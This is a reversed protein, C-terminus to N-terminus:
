HCPLSQAVPLPLRTRGFAEFVSGLRTRSTQKGWFLHGEDREREPRTETPLYVITEDIDVTAFGCVGDSSYVLNWTHVDGTQGVLHCQHRSGLSFPIGCHKSLNAMWYVEFPLSGESLRLELQAIWPSHRSQYAFLSCGHVCLILSLPWCSLFARNALEYVECSM